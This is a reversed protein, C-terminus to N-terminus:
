WPSSGSEAATTLMKVFHARRLCASARGGISRLCCRSFGWADFTTVDCFQWGTTLIARCSVVQLHSASLAVAEWDSWCELFMRGAHGILCHQPQNNCFHMADEGRDAAEQSCFKTRRRRKKRSKRGEIVCSTSCIKQGSRQHGWVEICTSQPGSRPLSARLM